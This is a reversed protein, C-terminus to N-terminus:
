LAFIGARWSRLSQASSSAPQACARFPPAACPGEGGARVVPNQADGAGDGIEVRTFAEARFVEGFCHLIAAEIAIVPLSGPARVRVRAFRPSADPLWCTDILTAIIPPAISAPIEFPEHKLVIM